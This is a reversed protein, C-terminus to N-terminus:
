VYRSNRNLIEKDLFQVQKKGGSYCQREDKNM